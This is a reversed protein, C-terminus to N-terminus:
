TDCLKPLLQFLPLLEFPCSLCGPCCSGSVEVLQAVRLVGTAPENLAEVEAAGIPAVLKLARM